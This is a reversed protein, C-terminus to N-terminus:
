EKVEFYKYSISRSSELLRLHPAGLYTPLAALNAVNLLIAEGSLSATDENSIERRGVSLLLDPSQHLGLRTDLYEGLRGVCGM